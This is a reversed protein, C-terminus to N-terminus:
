DRVVISGTLIIRAAFNKFTTSICLISPIEFTHWCWLEEAWKCAHFCQSVQQNLYSLLTIRHRENEEAASASRNEKSIRFGLKLLPCEVALCIKFGEEGPKFAFAGVAAV